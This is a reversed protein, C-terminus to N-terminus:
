RWREFGLYPRFREKVALTEKAFWDIAAQHKRKLEDSAYYGEKQLQIMSIQDDIIRQRVM